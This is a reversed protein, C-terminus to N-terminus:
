LSIIQDAISNFYNEHTVILIIRDKKYSELMESLKISSNEDLSSTPEDLILVDSKKLLSRMLCLKQKEGGSLTSQNLNDLDIHSLDFKQIYAVLEDNSYEIDSLFGSISEDYILSNQSSISYNNKRLKKINIKNIPVNNILLEGNIISYLGLIIDILTTKGTGNNGTIIYLKNKEFKQNFDNLLMRDDFGFIANKFEINDVRDLVIDGYLECPTNYLEEIRNASVRAEQITKGLNFFFSISKLITSYYSSTLSFMGISLNGKIIEIGGFLFLLIQALSGMVNDLSTFFGSLKNYKVVQKLLITFNKKLKRLFNLSLENVKILKIYKIQDNLKAFYQNQIETLYFKEMYVKKHMFKYVLIYLIVIVIIILTLKYNTRTLIIIPVIISCTNLVINQIFSICFTIITTCDNNIRQTLYVDNYDKFFNFKFKHLRQLIDSNFNYCINSHLKSYMITTVYNLIIALTNLVIFFMCYTLLFDYSKSVILRDIFSAM